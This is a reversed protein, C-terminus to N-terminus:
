IHISYEDKNYLTALLKDVKNIKRDEPALPFDNHLEHLKLPYELDVELQVGQSEYSYIEQLFLDYKELLSNLKEKLNNNERFNRYPLQM